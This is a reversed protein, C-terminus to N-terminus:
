ENVAVGMDPLTILGTLKIPDQSFCPCVNWKTLLDLSGYAHVSKLYPALWHPVLNTWITNAATKHDWDEFDRTYLRYQHILRVDNNLLQQAM